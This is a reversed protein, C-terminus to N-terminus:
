ILKIHKRSGSAIISYGCSSCYQLACMLNRDAINLFSDLRRRGYFRLVMTLSVWLSNNFKIIMGRQVWGKPRPTHIFLNIGMVILSRRTIHFYILLRILGYHNIVHILRVKWNSKNVNHHNHVSTLCESLNLVAHYVTDEWRKWRQWNLPEYWLVLLM